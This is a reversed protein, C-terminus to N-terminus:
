RKEMRDQAKRCIECIEKRLHEPAIVVLDNIQSLLEQRFDYTLKLHLRIRFEKDDDILTEQSEHLPFAENYRGSRPSFSLIVEEVPLNDGSYIGFVDKFEKEVDISSDRSFRMDTM